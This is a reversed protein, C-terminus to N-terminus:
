PLSALPNAARVTVAMRKRPAKKAPPAKDASTAQKATAM